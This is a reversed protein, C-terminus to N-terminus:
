ETSPSRKIKRVGFLRLLGNTAGALILLCFLVTRLISLM